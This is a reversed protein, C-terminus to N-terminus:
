LHIFGPSRLARAAGPSEPRRLEPGPNLIRQGEAPCATFATQQIYRKILRAKVPFASRDELRPGIHQPMSRSTLSKSGSHEREAVVGFVRRRSSDVNLSARRRRDRVRM